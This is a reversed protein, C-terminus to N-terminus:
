VTNDIIVMDFGASVDATASGSLNTATLYIDTKETVAQQPKFEHAFHSSADADLGLLHKLQPAYANANDQHWMKVVVDPSGGGPDKNLSAWYNVIYGTKDAPVTYIAMLTQNNGAQIISYTTGGGVNRLEVNQTTVIASQVKMRFVRRLATGLAVPTTTDAGDLVVDQVVLAYNTDLGQIEITEGQMTAQDVAQRLHTIDATAPFTYANSGDWVTETAATALAPNNGFKNLSAAGDINGQAVEMFYDLMINDELWDILENFIISPQATDSPEYSLGLRPSRGIV